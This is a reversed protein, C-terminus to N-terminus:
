IQLTPIALGSRTRLITPPPELTIQRSLANQYQEWLWNLRQEPITILHRGDSDYIHSVGHETQITNQTCAIDNDPNCENIHIHCLPLLHPPSIYRTDRLQTANFNVHLINTFHQHQKHTYYQTLLSINHNITHPNNWPFLAKQPLWKNYTTANPLTWQCLYSTYTKTIQHTDTYTHPRNNLISHIPYQIHNHQIHLPPKPYDPHPPRHPHANHRSPRTNLHHCPIKYISKLTNPLRFQSSYEM